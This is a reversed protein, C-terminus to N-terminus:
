EVPKGKAVWTSFSGRFNRVDRFGLVELVWTNHGSRFGGQCYVILPQDPETVGLDALQARLSDESLLDGSPAFAAGHEWFTAGPIFGAEWEERTRTDLLVHGAAVHAEVDAISAAREARAERVETAPREPGDGTAAVGSAGVYASYGGVLVSVDEYGAYRLLWWGWGDEGWEGPEGVVLIPEVVGLAAFREALLEAEVSPEDDENYPFVDLLSVSLSGPLHGAEWSAVPRIDLVTGYADAEVADAFTAFPSAGQFGGTWYPGCGTFLAFLSLCLRM